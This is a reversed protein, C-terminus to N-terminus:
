GEVEKISRVSIHGGRYGFSIAITTAYPKKVDKGVSTSLQGTLHVIMRSEDIKAASEHFVSSIDNRKVHEAKEFLLLKLSSYAEPDAIKLLQEHKYDINKPTYNESLQAVYSAMEELYSASVKDHTVWFSQKTSTPVITTTHNGSVKFIILMSLVLCAGLFLVLKRSRSLEVRLRDTENTISETSSM